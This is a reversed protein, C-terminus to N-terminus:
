KRATKATVPGTATELTERVFRSLGRRGYKEKAARHLRKVLSPPLSFATTKQKEPEM